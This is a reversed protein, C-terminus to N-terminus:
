KSKKKAPVSRTEDMKSNVAAQPTLSVKRASLQEGIIDGARGGNLMSDLLLVRYVYNMPYQANM